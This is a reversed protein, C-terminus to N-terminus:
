CLTFQMGSCHEMESSKELFVWFDVTLAFINSTDWGEVKVAAGPSMM